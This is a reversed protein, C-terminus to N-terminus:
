LFSTRWCRKKQMQFSSKKMNEIANIYLKRLDQKLKACPIEKSNVLHKYRGNDLVDIQRRICKSPVKKEFRDFFSM